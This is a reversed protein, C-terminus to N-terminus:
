AAVGAASAPLSDPLCGTLILTLEDEEFIPHLVGEFEATGALSRARTSSVVPTLNDGPARGAAGALLGMACLAMGRPGRCPVAGASSMQRMKDRMTVELDLRHAGALRGDAAAHRVSYCGHARRWCVAFPGSPLLVHTSLTGHLHEGKTWIHTCCPTTSHPPRQLDHRTDHQADHLRMGNFAGDGDALVLARCPCCPAALRLCSLLSCWTCAPTASRATSAATRASHLAVAAHPLLCAPARLPHCLPTRPRPPCLPPPSPRPRARSRSLSPSSRTACCRRSRCGARRAGSWCTGRCGVVAHCCRM